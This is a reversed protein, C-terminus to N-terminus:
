FSVNIGATYTRAQPYVGFDRGFGLAAFPSASVEPDYGSYNTWTVLNQGTVYVRINSSSIKKTLNAPLNYALTLNKLRVYTGDELFRTSFRNNQNPDGAVARPVDTNTNTPTWRDLVRTTQNFADSMGETTIRNENYIDNGFSGQFLVSLEVGKYSFNNTIGGQLKPNPNGIIKRDSGNIVGDGNLDAFRIDGPKAGSQYLASANGSKERATQNAADIEAQSQFLGQTVYGYFAGLPSGKQTIAFDNNNTNTIIQRGVQQGQDNALTGLDLVENRNISLNLSTNWTFGNNQSQVNQTNIGLELGKNQVEGLNRTVNDVGASYPLSVTLLLDKTRKMYADFTVTIRDSLFGLDLGGNYQYTTEWKLDPNGVTLSPGIGGVITSGSGQYNQNTSYTSFRGYIPVSQNGNVGVSARIKVNSVTKSQPFFEEKSLRWGLGLAPFYGFKNKTSFRSTGDARLSLSALYKDEYSYNARGFFSMLGWQEEYTSPRTFQTGASLYPVANSPFGSVQANSTFRDSEQVSQGALLTLDHGEGINPRYTLTNEWLWVAQRTNGTRASGRLSSAQNQFGPYERSLFENELQERYDLGASSRLTLNKLIDLEAYLNGIVQDTSALNHTELLNGIPNDIQRFPNQGYLGDATRVPITPIQALAGLITGSSGAGLESRVSGNTNSRSLNLNTGLRFKTSVQQDLNLKFSYRDFGSNRVIGDQKFYGGSAYYRTKDTGGSIGLQYNQIAATRYMEDQWDTNYQLSNIQDQTFAPLQGANTRAENYFQAFQQNNLLDIKKRLQQVGYYMSLSVQPKGSKGHKTTIVIVGNSARVGYIAAAAADKLVDISEIDNPNISNLPNPTQNGIAIERDYQPVIPVGDIVYLPSNNLNVSTNGRIRVNIAAGPSGTPATIQVGPAQGQLAQDFGAVTQRSIAQGGVSAVSTTLQQRTQTGYGVVVVENLAQTDEALSVNFSTTAGTVPVEKRSYGVFSFVLTSGVPASLSFAGNADTTAGTTTGKVVVTVGPLPDGGAQTVRGSVTVDEAKSVNASGLTSATSQADVVLYYDARLKKFALQAQPLVNNLKGELTAAENTGLVHKDHVLQSEYFITVGYEKEWRGLLDKLLVMQVPQATTRQSVTNVALIQASATNNPSHLLMTCMTLSATHVVRRCLRTNPLTM